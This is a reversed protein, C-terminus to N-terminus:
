KKEAPAASVAPLGKEAIIKMADEVPIQAIGSSQDIWGLRENAVTDQRNKERLDAQPDENHGPVGQLRPEPPMSKSDSMEQVIPPPPTDSDKAIDTTVRLVFVCIIYSAIVALALVALYVYITTPQVDRPEFTVDAHTPVAGTKHGENHLHSNM